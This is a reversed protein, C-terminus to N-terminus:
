QFRHRVNQNRVVVPNLRFAQARQDLRDFPQPRDAHHRRAMLAARGRLRQRQPLRNEPLLNRLAFPRDLARRRIRHNQRQIFQQGVPRVQHNGSDIAAPIQAFVNKIGPRHARRHFRRDIVDRRNGNRHRVLAPSKAELLGRFERPIQRLQRQGLAHRLANQEIHVHRQHPVAAHANVRWDLFTM